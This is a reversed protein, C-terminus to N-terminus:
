LIIRAVIQMIPTHISNSCPIEAIPAGRRYSDNVALREQRGYMNVAGGLAIDSIGVGWLITMDGCKVSDTVDRLVRDGIRM